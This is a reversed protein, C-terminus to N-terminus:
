GRLFDDALKFFLEPEQVHLWHGANITEIRAAPFLRLIDRHDEQRIYPSQSGAIFLTPGEYRSNETTAPAASIAEYNKRIGYMNTRWALIRDEDRGLSTLLFMRLDRDPIIDKILRDADARSTLLAHDIADVAEFIRDHRPDYARPAIDAIILKTVRRPSDLALQMAIKGGMSHGMIAVKALAESEMFWMVDIAMEPFSMSEAHQSDGHNRMDLAYVDRYQSLRRALPAWNNHSGFLGHLVLM